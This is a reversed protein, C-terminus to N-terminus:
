EEWEVPSSAPPIGAPAVLQVLRPGMEPVTLVEDAVGHNIAEQPMAPCRCTTPDQVLVRGGAGRLLALGEVGDRGSGSCLVGVAGPGYVRAVSAFLLDASPRVFHVRPTDGLHLRQGADIELHLNPVAVYVVGPQVRLGESAPLVPLSTERRLVDALHSKHHPDLHLLALM